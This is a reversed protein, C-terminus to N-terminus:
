RGRTLLTRHALVAVSSSDLGGSIHAGVPFPSEVRCAVAADLLARLEELYDREAAYRREATRGPQWYAWRRLGDRAVTLCHAPPLKHIEQYFTHEPRQFLGSPAQLYGRLYALNLLGPVAPHAVMAPLGGACVFLGTSPAHHYYFPRVGVFDRACFLRGAAEDWLAFAFDGLLREVCATGWQLYARLLLGADDLTAREDPGIALAAYLEARNDLRVDAAITFSGLSPLLTRADHTTVGESAAQVALTCCNRAGPLSRLADSEWPCDALAAMMRTVAQTEAEVVERRDAPAADAPALAGYIMRM